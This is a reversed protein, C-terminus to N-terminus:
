VAGCQQQCPEYRLTSASAYLRYYRITHLSKPPVHQLLRTIFDKPKLRQQKIRQDRHDLYSMTVVDATIQKLQRPDIPGGKCYRALYLVVGKGHLYHEEIRVCWHKTCVEIYRGFSLTRCRQRCPLFLTFTRCTSFGRKKSKLGISANNIPASMVAEIAARIFNSLKLM